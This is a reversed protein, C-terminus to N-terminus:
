RSTSCFAFNLMQRTSCHFRRKAVLTCRKCRFSLPCSMSAFLIASAFSDIDCSRTRSAILKFTRVALRLLLKCVSTPGNIVCLCSGTCKIQDLLPHNMCEFFRARAHFFRGPFQSGNCLRSTKGDSLSYPMGVSAFHECTGACSM